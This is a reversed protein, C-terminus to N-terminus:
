SSEQHHTTNQSLGPSEAPPLVQLGPNKEVHAEECPRPKKALHCIMELHLVGSLSGSQYLLWSPDDRYIHFMITYTHIHDICIYIKIYM